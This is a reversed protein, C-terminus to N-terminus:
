NTDETPPVKKQKKGIDEAERVTDPLKTNLTEPLTLALFGSSVGLGGFLLLPLAKM